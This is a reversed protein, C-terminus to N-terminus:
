RRVEFPDNFRGNDGRRGREGMVRGVGLTDRAFDVSSISCDTGETRSEAADMRADM